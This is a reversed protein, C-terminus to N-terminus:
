IETFDVYAIRREFSVKYSCVKAGGTSHLNVYKQGNAFLLKVSAASEKKICDVFIAGVRSYAVTRWFSGM